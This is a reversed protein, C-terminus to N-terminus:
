RNEPAESRPLDVRFRAGGLDASRDVTLTGGLDEVITRCIYLGLGSGGSGERTTVFPSFVEERLADPIGPGSDEVLLVTRGDVVSAALRLRGKGDMAQFANLALNSFLQVLRHPVAQILYDHDPAFSVEVDIGEQEYRVLRLARDVAETLDCWEVDDRSANVFSELGLDRLMQLFFDTQSRVMELLERTPAGDHDLADTVEHKINLVPKKIDHFVNASLQGALALRELQLVQAKREELEGIARNLQQEKGRQRVLLITLGAALMIGIMAVVGDVVRLATRDVDVYLFGTAPSGGVRLETWDGTSQWNPSSLALHFPYVVLRDGEATLKVVVLRRILDSQCARANTEIDAFVLTRSEPRGLVGTTEFLQVARQLEAQQGKVLRDRLWLLTALAAVLLVLALMLPWRPPQPSPRPRKM